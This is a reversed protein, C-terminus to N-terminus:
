KRRTQIFSGVYPMLMFLYASAAVVIPTRWLGRTAEPDEIGLVLSAHSLTIRMCALGTFWTFATLHIMTLASLESRTGTIWRYAFIFFGRAVFGGAIGVALMMGIVVLYLM